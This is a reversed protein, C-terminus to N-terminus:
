DFTELWNAYDTRFIYRSYNENYKEISKLWCGKYTSRYKKNDPIWTLTNYKRSLIKEKYSTLAIFSIERLGDYDKVRREHHKLTNTHLKVDYEETGIDFLNLKINCEKIKIEFFPLSTYKQYPSEDKKILSYGCIDKDWYEKEGFEDVHIVSYEPYGHEKLYDKLHNYAAIKADIWGKSYTYFNEKENGFWHGDDEYIDTILNKHLVFAGCEWFAIITEKDYVDVEPIEEERQQNYNENLYDVVKNIDFM